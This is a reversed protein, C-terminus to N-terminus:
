SFHLFNAFCHHLCLLLGGGGFSGGGIFRRASLGALRLLVIFFRFFASLSIHPVRFCFLKCNATLLMCYLCLLGPNESRSFGPSETKKRDNGSEDKKETMGTFVPIWRNIRRKRDNEHLRSDMKQRVSLKTLTLFYGAGTINFQLQAHGAGFPSNGNPDPSFILRSMALTTPYIGGLM